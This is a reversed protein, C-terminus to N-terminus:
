TPTAEKIFWNIYFIHRAEIAKELETPEWDTQLSFSSGALQLYHLDLVLALAGGVGVLREVPAEGGEGAGEGQEDGEYGEEDEEGEEETDAAATAQPTSPYVTEYPELDALGLSRLAALAPELGYGLGEAEAEEEAREEAAQELSGYDEQHLSRMMALSPAASTDLSPEASTDFTARESAASAGFTMGRSPVVELKLVAAMAAAATAAAAIAADDLVAGGGSAEHALALLAEMEAMMSCGTDKAAALAAAASPVSSSAPSTQRRPGFGRKTDPVNAAPPPPREKKRQGSDADHSRGALRLLPSIDGVLARATKVGLALDDTIRDIEAESLVRRELAEALCRDLEADVDYAVAPMKTGTLFIRALVTPTPPSNV